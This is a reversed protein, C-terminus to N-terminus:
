PTLSLPSAESVYTIAGGLSLDVVVYAHNATLGSLQTLGPPLTFKAVGQGLSDLQALNGSLPPTNSSLSMLFYTDVNLPLTFGGPVPFGPSTGSLSGFLAFLKDGYSAGPKAVLYSTGGAATSITPPISELDPAKPCNQCELHIDDFFWGPVSGATPTGGSGSAYRLENFRFDPVLVDLDPTGSPHETAPNLWLRVREDGSQFDIRYVLRTVNDVGGLGTTVSGPGQGALTTDIGYDDFQYPTGMFLYEGVGNPDLFIFFSLGAYADNGGYFRQTTFSMWLTTDDKGLLPGQASGFQADTINGFETLDPRRFNVYEGLGSAPDANFTLAMGGIADFGPTFVFSNQGTPGAYWPSAWGTGSGTDGLFTGAPLDFSEFSITRYTDQAAANAAGFVLLGLSTVLAQKM